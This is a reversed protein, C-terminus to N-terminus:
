TREVNFKTALQQLQLQGLAKSYNRRIESVFSFKLFHYFKLSKKSKLEAACFLLPFKTELREGMDKVVTFGTNMEIVCPM